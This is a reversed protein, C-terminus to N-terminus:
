KTEDSWVKQLTLHWENHDDAFRITNGDSLGDVRLHDYKEKFQEITCYEDNGALIDWLDIMFQKEEM